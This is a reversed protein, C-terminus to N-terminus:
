RRMEFIHMTELDDYIDMLQKKIHKTHSLTGITLLMTEVQHKCDCLIRSELTGYEKTM